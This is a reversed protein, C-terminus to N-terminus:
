EPVAFWHAHDPCEERLRRIAQRVITAEDVAGATWLRDVFYPDGCGPCAVTLPAVLEDARAAMNMLRRFRDRHVRAHLLTPM